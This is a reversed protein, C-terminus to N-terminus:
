GRKRVEFMFTDTEERVGELSLQGNRKMELLLDLFARRKKRGDENTTEIDGKESYENEREEIVKFLSKWKKKKKKWVANGFSASLSVSYTFHHMREICSYYEKGM